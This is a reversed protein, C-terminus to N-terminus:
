SVNSSEPIGSTGKGERVGTAASPRSTSSDITTTKNQDLLTKWNEQLTSDIFTAATVTADDTAQIAAGSVVIRWGPDAPKNTGAGTPSLIANLANIDTQSAKDIFRVYNFLCTTRVHTTLAANYEINWDDSTTNEAAAQSATEADLKETNYFYMAGTANATGEKAGYDSAMTNSIQVWNTGLPNSLTNIGAETAKSGSSTTLAYCKLLTAVEADTMNQYEGKTLDLSDTAVWKQFQLKIGAYVASGNKSTNVVFPNKAVESGPLMNDAKQPIATGDSAKYANTTDIANTWAPELLDATVTPDATM